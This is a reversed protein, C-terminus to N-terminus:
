VVFQITSSGVNWNAGFARLLNRYYTLSVLTRGGRGGCRFIKM